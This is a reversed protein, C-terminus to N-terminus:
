IGARLAVLTSGMIARRYSYFARYHPTLLQCNAIQGKAETRDANMRTFGRYPKRRGAKRDRAIVAIDAIGAIKGGAKAGKACPAAM